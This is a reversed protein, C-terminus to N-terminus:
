KRHVQVQRSRRLQTGTSVEGHAVEDILSLYRVLVSEWNYRAEVLRFADDALQQRLVPQQLLRVICDAFEHAQDAILVHKGPDLTLGEAGKSTTVVPTHLAMAELIKLRTGGGTRIPVVSCWARAIWPRVDPLLGTLTVGDANPLPLGAHDGTIALRAQPVLSRVLPYVEELFWCMADYNPQYSLSGTFILSDPEPLEKVAQYTGLDVCNPIVEVKVDHSVEQLLIQREKESVVTCLQYYRMLESLFRRHKAWTLSSRLRVPLSQARTIHDRWVGVEVEEFIAPKGAFSSAYNAMDIQSAIVFDIEGERISAQIRQEMEKSYMDLYARPTASFFGLRSARSDPQFPRWPVAQIDRCYASLHSKDPEGVIPDYFSVLSMQHRKALGRLLNYIRIKSGNDPPYPFWRSLFLIHM